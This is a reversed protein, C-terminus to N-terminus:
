RIGALPSAVLYLTCAFVTWRITRPVSQLRAAAVASLLSFATLWGSARGLSASVGDLLRHSYVLTSRVDAQTWSDLSTTLMKLDGAVEFATISRMQISSAVWALIMPIALWLVNTFVDGRERM